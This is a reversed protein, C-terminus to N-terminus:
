PALAGPKGLAERCSHWVGSRILTGSEGFAERTIHRVACEGADGFRREGARRQIMAQRPCGYVGVRRPEGRTRM